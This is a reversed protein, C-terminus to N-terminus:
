YKGENSDDDNEAKRKLKKYADYDSTIGVSYKKGYKGPPKLEKGDIYSKVGLSNDIAASDRLIDNGRENMVVFNIEAIVGTLLEEVKNLSEAANNGGKYKEDYFRKTEELFKKAQDTNFFYETIDKPNRMGKEYESLAFKKAEELTQAVLTAFERNELISKDKVRVDFTEGYESKGNAKKDDEKKRKPAM